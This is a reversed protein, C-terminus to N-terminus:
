GFGVKRVIREELTEERCYQELQKANPKKGQIVEEMTAKKLINDIQGGSFNFQTALTQCHFKKLRPFKMKWIHARAEITPKHMQIKFLFRREFAPDINKTLNTTAILIGQFNELQELLINQITNETRSINSMEVDTRKSLIADAENFLLIPFREEAEAIKMYQTFISKLIKESEGYWMSKSNSIDVHAISRGTRKALQYVTETKGTGPEGHLLVVIGKSLGKQSLKQQIKRLKKPELSAQLRNIQEEEAANYIMKKQSITEPMIINKRQKPKSVMSIGSEELLMKGQDSITIELDDIFSNSEIAILDNKILPSAEKILTQIFVFKVSQSHFWNDLLRSPSVSQTGVIATQWATQLFIYKEEDELKYQNIKNIIPLKKHEDLLQMFNSKLEYRDIEDKEFDEELKYVAELLMIPNNIVVPEFEPAKKGRIISDALEDNILFDFSNLRRRSDHDKMMKILNRHRLNDFVEQYALVKHSNCNFFDKLTGFDVYHEEYNLSFITALFFAEIPSTNFYKSLIQLQPKIKEFFEPKLQSDKSQDHVDAIVELIHNQTQM